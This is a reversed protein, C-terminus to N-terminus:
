AAFKILAISVAPVRGVGLTGIGPKRSVAAILIVTSSKIQDHLPHLPFHHVQRIGVVEALM